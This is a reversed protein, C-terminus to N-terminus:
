PASRRRSSWHVARIRWVGDELTLVMLEAGDSNVARGRFTGTTTSATIAWAVGGQVTVLTPGSTSPVTQAFQLDAALHHARYETRTEMGGAELIVVDDALLALAALSDGAALAAHFQSVVRAVATSDSTAHQARAVSAAMASALLTVLVHRRM